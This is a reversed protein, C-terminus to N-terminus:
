MGGAIGDLGAGEESITGAATRVAASLESAHVQV